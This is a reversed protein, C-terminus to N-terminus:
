AFALQTQEAKEKAEDGLTIEEVDLGLRSASGLSLWDLNPGLREPFAQSYAVQVVDAYDGDSVTREFNKYSLPVDVLKKPFDWAELIRAGIPGHAEEIVADLRVEDQLLEDNHEAYTLIPLAGINHLLGALAAQEARLEPHSYGIVQAIGAVTVSDKWAANFRQDLIKSTTLFMQQMAAATALSAAVDIGFRGIATPLDEVECRGRYLPSNSVKLMRAALAADQAIIDSLGRIDIDEKDAAERVEIAIEPLTPLSLRQEDIALCLEDIIQSVWNSM